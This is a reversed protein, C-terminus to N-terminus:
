GKKNEEIYIDIAQEVAEYETLGDGECYIDYASLAVERAKNRPIIKDDDRDSDLVVGEMWDVVFQKHAEAIEEPKLRINHVKGNIKRTIIM